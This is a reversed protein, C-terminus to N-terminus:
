EVLCRAQTVTAPDPAAARDIVLKLNSAPCNQVDTELRWCTASGCAPIQAVTTGVVDEVICEPDAALPREICPSDIAFNIQRAAAQMAGSFDQQCIPSFASANGFSDLFQKMRVAPDAAELTTGQFTCSPAIANLAAGGGPPPRLEVAFPDSPGMIGAVVIKRADGKLGVLFDHYPAVDTMFYSGTSATCGTKGGVTNMEAENNGGQACTVGFLTCRFSQQPGLRPSEPGLMEASRLSCDDEDTLFVVALSADARLFGDNAPNPGLAAKMAALPQEYGCGGAGVRAMQSFVSSLTGAYNVTRSGDTERIDTVFSGQVPAGSTLLDGHKGTGACGGNGIQGISVGPQAEEAAKTGMDTTVVGLHLDPLGGPLADLADIFSPFNNALNVQKDSMTPSDDIVFLLDLKRNPTALISAVIQHPEPPGGDDGCGVLTALLTLVTIRM